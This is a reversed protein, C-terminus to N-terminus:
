QKLKLLLHRKLTKLGKKDMISVGPSNSDSVSDVMTARNVFPRHPQELTYYNVETSRGCATDEPGLLDDLFIEGRLGGYLFM